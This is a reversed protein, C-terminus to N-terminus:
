SIMVFLYDIESKKNRVIGRIKFNYKNLLIYILLTFFLKILIGFESLVNGKICVIM